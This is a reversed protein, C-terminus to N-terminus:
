DGASRAKGYAMRLKFRARKAAAQVDDASRDLRRAVEAPSEAPRGLGDLRTVVDRDGPDLRDLFPLLDDPRAKPKPTSRAQAPARKAGSAKTASSRATGGAKSTAAKTTATGGSRLRAAPAKAATARKAATGTKAATGRKAATRAKAATGTKAATGGRARSSTASRRGGRGAGAEARASLLALAEDLTLADPDTGEALSANVKGHKVYPGYKGDHLTVPEGDQPHEGITKRPAGRGRKNAILHLATELDVALVDAGKPLSAFVKEHRVYPGFRGIHAEIPSGTEPHVGLRRPLDLLRQAMDADVGEPTVGPPLSVRKPREEGTGDGLQLYHGYPGRKLLMPQDSPRHVGLAADPANRERLARELDDRHLDAPIADDPLSARLSEGDVVGEVYPGYRGVSVAYPEWRPHRITSIAKADLSALGEEVRRAIGNPGAYVADLYPVRERLGQAIQDLDDELEATFKTDVLQSFQAELLANTAFGTFTPVLQSGGKRAYGRQQITDLITAYTSPRGIGEEELKKVLSAETYRAPPKTEHGSATVRIPALADDVALPPLAQDQADLRADPDDSGEVYARLFGAFLTTRGTARFGALREGAQVELRATVFRLRADAMQSAVARKWVLDYLAADRDRLGLEEATAMTTGAPRIAEHAEQANKSKKAYRRPEAPLHDAGYRAAVTTRIAELAEPALNTSDTRMYTILGREYLGQAVRMTDRASWGLKRSAEQQLTSTIFPPQPRRVDERPEIAAVRWPEHRAAAALEHAETESLVVVDRGPVLGAALRGTHDDFDRGSAIRIGDLHTLTADFPRGDAAASAAARTAVAAEVDWYSAPVFDLRERERMVLLRVAVSQVRGASLGQAIKRWLLPSISYGVLRDLVRRTEQAEVLNLDLDRTEELARRIAAETIEHFSMRKVPVAPQLVEVVHWGIAEGERDEDTAIYVESAGSLAKKLARVKPQNQPSVVYHPRYDGQVDIGFTLHKAADGAQQANAPLDRVHGMSAVVRYGDGLFREITRAKTPSEVIVLRTTGNAAKKAV